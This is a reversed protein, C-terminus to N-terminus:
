PKDKGPWVDDEPWPDSPDLAIIGITEEIREIRECLFDTLYELESLDDHLIRAAMWAAGAVITVIGGWIWLM